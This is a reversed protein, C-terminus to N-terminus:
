ESISIEFKLNEFKDNFDIIIRTQKQNRYIPQLITLIEDTVRRCLKVDPDHNFSRASRRVYIDPHLKLRADFEAWKKDFDEVYLFYGHYSFINGEDIVRLLYREVDKILEAQDITENLNAIQATM